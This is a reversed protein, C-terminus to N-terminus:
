GIGGIDFGDGGLDDGLDDLLLAGIRQQRGHAPLGPQIGRERQGVHAHEVLEVDLQDTGIAFGDLHGLIALQEAFGHIADPQLIGLGGDNGGGLRRVALEVDLGAKGFRHVGNFIDAQGRDDAGGKCEAAGTPPDGIVAGIILVVAARAKLGRRRPLDEDIFGKKSPFFELHLDHPVLGVVGDDDAGDLVDIGHADM